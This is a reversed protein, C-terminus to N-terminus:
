TTHQLSVHYPLNLQTFLRDANKHLAGVCVEGCCQIYVPCLSFLPKRQTRTNLRRQDTCSLADPTFLGKNCCDRISAQNWLVYLIGGSLPTALWPALHINSEGAGSLRLVQLLWGGKVAARMGKKRCLSLAPVHPVQATHRSLFIM